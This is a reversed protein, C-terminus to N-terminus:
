SHNNTLKPLLNQIIQQLQQLGNDSQNTMKASTVLYQPYCAPRTQTLNQITILLQELTNNKIRDSKTIVIQYLKGYYDLFDMIMLDIEKLGVKADILIFLRKLNQTYLLYNTIYESLRLKQKQSIKAYGYGPLDVLYLCQALIFLNMETTKGPTKSTKVLKKRNVLKNMLSSKGCNSRGWFAFHPLNDQPMHQYNVFGAIFNCSQTFLNSIHDHSM